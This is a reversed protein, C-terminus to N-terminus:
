QRSLTDLSSLEGRRESERSVNMYAEDSKRWLEDNQSVAQKVAQVSEGNVERARYCNKKRREVIERSEGLEEGNM